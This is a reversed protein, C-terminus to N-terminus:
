EWKVSLIVLVCALLKQLHICIHHASEAESWNNNDTFTVLNSRICIYRKMGEPTTVSFSILHCLYELLAIASFSIWCYNHQNTVSCLHPIINWGRCLQCCKIMINACLEWCLSARIEVQHKWVSYCHLNFILLVLSLSLEKGTCDRRDILGSM